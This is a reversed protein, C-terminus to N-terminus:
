YDAKIMAQDIYKFAVLLQAPSAEAENSMM